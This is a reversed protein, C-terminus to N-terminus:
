NAVCLGSTYQSKCVRMMHQPRGCDSPCSLLFIAFDTL